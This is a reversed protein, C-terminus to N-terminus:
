NETPWKTGCSSARNITEPMVGYTFHEGFFFKLGNAIKTDLVVDYDERVFYAKIRLGKWFKTSSLKYRM